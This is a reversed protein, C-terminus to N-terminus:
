DHQVIIRDVSRLNNSELTLIYLGNSLNDIGLQNTSSLDLKWQKILNGAVDSLKVDFAGNANSEIFIEKSAPNPYVNLELDNGVDAIGVFDEETIIISAEVYCGNSDSYTVAFTGPSTILISQTTDGVSWLYNFGIGTTLLISGTQPQAIINGAIIPNLTVNFQDQVTDCQGYITVSYVGSTDITISAVSDGTSWAYSANPAAASKVFSAGYCITTDKGLEVNIHAEVVRITDVVTGCQGTVSVTYEGENPPVVISSNTDGTQWLYSAFPLQSLNNLSLSDGCTYITDHGGGLSGFRAYVQRKYTYEVGSVYIHLTVTHFGQTLYTHQVPSVTSSNIANLSDGFDWRLSDIGATNASFHVPENCKSTYDFYAPHFYSQIFDPLGLGATDGNLFVSNQTIGVNAGVENPNEIAALHTALVRTGYIKKDLGIQLAYYSTSQHLYRSSVIQASDFTDLSYQYLGKGNVFNLNSFYLQKSDPSFESGYTALTDDSISVTGTVEGTSNDFQHIFAQIPYQWSGVGGCDSLYRGDPSSKMQGAFGYQTTPVHSVVPTTNLGNEDVLFALISDAQYLRTIVWIDKGNAHHVATSKETTGVALPLNLENAAIEGIPNAATKRIISYDHTFGSQTIYYFVNSDLPKPIILAGQTASFNGNLGAGNPIVQHSSDYVTNPSGYFMLEGNEYSHVATGEPAYSMASNDIHSPVGNQFRMGSGWGFYWHSTPGQGFVDLSNLLIAILFLSLNRPNM